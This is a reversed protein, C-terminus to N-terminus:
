ALIKKNKARFPKFRIGDGHYFKSMFEYYLLRVSQVGSSMFEFSMAIGNMLILSPVVGMLGGLQVAANALSAHALAFAVIRLFSFLNALGEVFVMLLAGVGEGINEISFNGHALASIIPELLSLILGGLLLYFGWYSFTSMFNDTRIFEMASFYLGSIYLVIGLGHQGIIGIKHGGKWQNIGGLIGGIAIEIAGILFVLKMLTTTQYVPSPMIPYLFKTFGLDVEAKIVHPALEIEHFHLSHILWHTIQHELLFASDYLLGFIIAAIGMPIFLTAFKSIMGTKYKKSLFFGALLFIAGQGIDGFMLGFQFSFVIIAIYKPNIEHTSPWGRLSTLTWAPQLIDPELKPVPNPINHDDHSAEEFQIYLRVGINSEVEKIIENFKTLKDEPVWGQLINLVRTRMVPVSDDSFLNLMYDMYALKGLSEELEEKLIKNQQINKDDLDKLQKNYDGKIHERKESLGKGGAEFREFEEQYKKIVEERKKPDLVLLIDETDIVDFIDKVGFVLFLSEVWKRNEEPGFVFLISEEEDIKIAKYLLDPYGHLYENFRPIINNKVVGVAFCKKLEEPELARVSELKVRRARLEDGFKKLEQNQKEIIHARAIDQKEIIDNYTFFLAENKELVANVESEPNLVFKNYEDTSPTVRKFEDDSLELLQLYRPHIKQYLEKYNTDKKSSGNLWEFDLGSVEKLQIIGSRGLSQLIIGEYEPPTVITVKKIL